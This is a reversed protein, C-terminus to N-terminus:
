LVMVAVRHPLHKAVNVIFGPITLVLEIARLTYLMTFFDYQIFIRVGYLNHESPLYSV